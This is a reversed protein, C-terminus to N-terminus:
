APHWLEAAAWLCDRLSGSPPLKLKALASVTNAVEQSNMSPAVCEAVTWLRDRLSGAPPLKLKALASVTNAVEQSDHQTGCSKLQGSVTV